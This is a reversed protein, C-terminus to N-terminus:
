IQMPDGIRKMLLYQIPFPQNTAFMRMNRNFITIILAGSSGKITQRQRNVINM